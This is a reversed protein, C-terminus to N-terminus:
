GPLALSDVLRLLDAQRNTRTKSFLRLLHTRVTGVGIDLTAAVEALSKGAVIEALVRTEAPTLDFLEAVAKTPLASTATAGTVFIAAAASPVLGPRLAGHRLPLVHLVLASGEADLMPVAASHDGKGAETVATALGPQRLVGAAIAAQGAPNAHLPHLHSDVVLVAKPMADLVAGFTAATLQQIDLVRSIAVARQIHPALLRIFEVERAGIDGVSAHRAFGVSCYTNSNRTVAMAMMDTIGQPGVWDRYYRSEMWEAPDRLWSLVQPEGVAFRGIVDAGGWQAVVDEGYREFSEAYPAPIGSTVNLLLQGHPMTWVSFMANHFGLVRRLEALAGDWRAPDLACDYILGILRSLEAADGDIAGWDSM